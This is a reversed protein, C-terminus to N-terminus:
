SILYTFTSTPQYLLQVALEIETASKIYYTYDQQHVIEGDKFLTLDVAERERTHPLTKKNNVFKDGTFSGTDPPTVRDPKDQIYADSSPDTEDYDSQVNKEGILGDTANIWSTGNFHFLGFSETLKPDGELKTYTGQEVAIGFMLYGSVSPDDSTTTLVGAYEGYNFIDILSFNKTKGTQGDTGLLKDKGDFLQDNKYESVRAM